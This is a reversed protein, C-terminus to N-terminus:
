RPEALVAQVLDGLQEPSFENGELNAVLRGKRDIVATHLSHDMLGEDQYYDEAFLDCVRRVDAEKGTLFHWWRPDAKWIRAYKALTEQDDHSPDFTVTLLVLNQRELEAKFRKQLNGFNNSSRFCFNPLACRTYIFNVAVVRGRLTALSVKRGDQSLLSFNPVAQNVAVPKNVQGAVGRELLKLRRAAVPDPELGEYSHLKIAEAYSSDKEVVLTFDIMDGPKLSDLERSDRVSLPMTMADMYSPIANCSVVMTKHAPDIKVILGRVLYRQPAAAYVAAVISFLFVVRSLNQFNM